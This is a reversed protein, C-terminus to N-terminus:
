VHAHFFAESSHCLYQGSCGIYKQMPAATTKSKPVTLILGYRRDLKIFQVYAVTLLRMTGNSHGVAAYKSGGVAGLYGLSLM